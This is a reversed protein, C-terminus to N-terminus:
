RGIRRRTVPSAAASAGSAALSRRGAASHSARSAAGIGRAMLPSRARGVAPSSNVARADREDMLSSCVVHAQLSTQVDHKRPGFHLWLLVLLVQREPPILNQRLHAGPGAKHKGDQQAPEASLALIQEDVRPFALRRDLSPGRGICLCLQSGFGLPYERLRELGEAFVLLNM